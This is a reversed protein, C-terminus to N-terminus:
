NKLILKLFPLFKTTNVHIKLPVHASYNLKIKGILIKKLRRGVMCWSRRMRGGGGRELQWKGGISSRCKGRRRGFPNVLAL